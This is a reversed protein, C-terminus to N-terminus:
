EGSERTGVVANWDGGCITIKRTEWDKAHLREIDEYMKMVQEDACGGHPMYASIFRFYKNYM